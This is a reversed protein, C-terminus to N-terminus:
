TVTALAIHLMDNRFRASLIGRDEYGRMLTLVAADVPVVESCQQRRGTAAPASSATAAPAPIQSDFRAVKRIAERNTPYESGELREHGAVHM